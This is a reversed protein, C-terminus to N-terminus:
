MPAALAKELKSNDDSPRIAFRQVVGAIIFAGILSGLTSFIISLVATPKMWIAGGFGVAVIMVGACLIITAWLNTFIRKAGQWLIKANFKM